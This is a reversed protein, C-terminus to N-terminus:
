KNLYKVINKEHEAFTVAYHIMGSKDHLYFLYSSSEPHIAAKIAEIGPNCIPSDPLGKQKYTESAADIQLMMGKSIRNWLIGSIVSRDINGKAERELISAMTIIEKETKGSSIIEPQLLIIKKEFNDGMTKIVDEENAVTFFNYTDPFLYGEKKEAELLFKDKKFNSLKLALINGINSVNFGEPITVKVEPARLKQREIRREIRIALFLFVFIIAVAASLFIIRKQNLLDM